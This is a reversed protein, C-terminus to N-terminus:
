HLRKAEGVVHPHRPLPTGDDVCDRGLLAREADDVDLVALPLALRAEAERGDVARDLQQALRPRDSLEGAGVDLAVGAVVM